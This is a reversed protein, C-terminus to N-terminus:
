ALYYGFINTQGGLAPTSRIKYNAGINSNAYVSAHLTDSEELYIVESTKMQFVLDATYEATVQFCFYDRLNVAHYFNSNLQLRVWDGIIPWVPGPGPQWMVATVKCGVLYYGTTPAVFSHTSTSFGLSRDFGVTDFEITVEGSTDNWIQDASLYAFFAPVNSSFRPFGSADITLGQNVSTFLNSQVPHFITTSSLGVSMGGRDALDPSIYNSITFSERAGVILSGDIWGSEEQVQDGWSIAPLTYYFSDADWDQATDLEIGRPMSYQYTQVGHFSCDRDVTVRYVGPPNETKSVVTYEETPVELNLFIVTGATFRNWDLDPSSTMTFENPTPGSYLTSQSDIYPTSDSKRVIYADYVPQIISIKSGIAINAYDTDSSLFAWINPTSDVNVTSITGVGLSDTRGKSRVSYSDVTLLDASRVETVLIEEAFTDVTIKFAENTSINSIALLNDENLTGPDVTTLQRIFRGAM